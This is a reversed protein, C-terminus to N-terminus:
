TNSNSNAPFNKFSHQKSAQKSIIRTEKIQLSNKNSNENKSNIVPLQIAFVIGVSLFTISIALNRFTKLNTM